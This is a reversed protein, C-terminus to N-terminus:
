AYVRASAAAPLDAEPLKESSEALARLNGLSADFDRKSWCKMLLDFYRAYPNASGNWRSLWTVRTHNASVPELSIVGDFEHERPGIKLHYAVRQDPASQTIALTGEMKRSSWKQGAGVGSPPGDYAYHIEDRRSWTTWRPWNRLDNILPFIESPKKAIITRRAVRM